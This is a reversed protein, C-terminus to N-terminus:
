QGKIERHYPNVFSRGKMPIGVWYLYHLLFGDPTNDRVRRWLIVGVSGLILCILLTRTIVGVCLFVSFPIVEDATWIMFPRPSDLHQPFSIQEGM